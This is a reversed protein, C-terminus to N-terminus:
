FGRVEIGHKELGVMPEPEPETKTDAKGKLVAEVLACSEPRTKRCEELLDFIDEREKEDMDAITTVALMLTVLQLSGHKIALYLPRHGKDDRINPNAKASVLRAVVNLTPNASRCALHLATQGDCRRADVPAASSLLTAVVPEWGGFSALHLPTVKDQDRVSPDAGEVLLYRVTEKAGASAAYHLPTHGMRDHLNISAGYSLLLQVTPLDAYRCAEFLPTTGNITDRDASSSLLYEVLRPYGHLAALHIPKLGDGDAASRRARYEVLLKVVGLHGTKAGLHLMSEGEPLEANIDAGNDLLWKAMKVNPYRVAEQLGLKLIDYVYQGIDRFAALVEKIDELKGERVALKIRREVESTKLTLREMRPTEGDLPHGPPPDSKGALFNRHEMVFNSVQQFFAADGTAEAVSLLRDSDKSLHKEDKYRLKILAKLARYSANAAACAVDTPLGTATEIMEDGEDEEADFMRIDILRQQLLQDADVIALLSSVGLLAHPPYKKGSLQLLPNQFQSDMWVERVLMHLPADRGLHAAEKVHKFWSRMAYGYQSISPTHSKTEEEYRFVIDSRSPLCLLTLCSAALDRQVAELQSPRRQLFMKVAQKLYPHALSVVQGQFTLLQFVEANLLSELHPRLLQVKKVQEMGVGSSDGSNIWAWFSKREDPTRAMRGNLARGSLSPSLSRFTAMPGQRSLPIEPAPNAHKRCESVALLASLEEPKMPRTALAVYFLALVALRERHTILYDIVWNALSEIDPLSEGENDDGYLKHIFGELYPLSRIGEFVRRNMGVWLFSLREDAVFQKQMRKFAEDDRNVGNELARSVISKLESEAFRKMSRAHEPRSTTEITVFSLGKPSSRQSDVMDESFLSLHNYTVCVKANPVTRLRRLLQKVIADCQKTCEDLGDIVLFIRAAPNGRLMSFLIETLEEDSFTPLRDHDDGVAIDSSAREPPPFQPTGGGADTPNSDTKTKNQGPIWRNRRRRRAFLSKTPFHRVLSSDIELLQLLFQHLMETFHNEPSSQNSFFHHLVIHCEGAERQGRPGYDDELHSAINYAMASKGTGMSGILVLLYIHKDQTWDKYEQSRYIWTVPEPHSLLSQVYDLGFAPQTLIRKLRRLKV